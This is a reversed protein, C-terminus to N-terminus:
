YSWTNSRWSVNLDHVLSQLDVSRFIRYDSFHILTIKYLLLNDSVNGVLIASAVLSPDSFDQGTVTTCCVPM